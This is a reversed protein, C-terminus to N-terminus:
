CIEKHFIVMVPCESKNYIENTDTGFLGFFKRPVYPVGMIALDAQEKNLFQSISRGVDRGVIVKTKMPFMLMTTYMGAQKVFKKEEQQFIKNDSNLIPVTEPIIISHLLTIDADRSEGTNAIAIALQVASIECNNQAGIPVVIKRPSINSGYTVWDKIPSRIIMVSHPSKRAVKEAISGSLRQFLGKRRSMMITLKPSLDNIEKLIISDPTSWKSAEIINVELNVKLKQAREKIREIKKQFYDEVKTSKSVIHLIYLHIGFYEATTLAVFVADRESPYGMLPLLIKDGPGGFLGADLDISDLTM